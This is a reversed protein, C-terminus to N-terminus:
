LGTQKKLKKELKKGVERSGYNPFIVFGTRDPHRLKMYSQWGPTRNGMWSENLPSTTRFIENAIM